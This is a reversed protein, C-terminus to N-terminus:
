GSSTKFFTVYALSPFECAVKLLPVVVLSRYKVFQFPSCCGWCLCIFMKLAFSSLLGAANQHRVLAPRNTNM